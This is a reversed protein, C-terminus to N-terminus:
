LEIGKRLKRAEENLRIFDATLVFQNRALKRSVFDGLKGPGRYDQLVL